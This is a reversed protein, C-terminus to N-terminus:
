VLLDGVEPFIKMGAVFNLFIQELVPVMSLFGRTEIITEIRDWEEDTATWGDLWRYAVAVPPTM